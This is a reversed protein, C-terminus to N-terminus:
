RNGFAVILAIGIASAMLILLHHRSAWEIQWRRRAEVRRNARGFWHDGYWFREDLDRLRASWKDV